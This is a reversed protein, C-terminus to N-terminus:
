QTQRQGLNMLASLIHVKEQQNQSFKKMGVRTIDLYHRSWHFCGEEARKQCSNFEQECFCKKRLDNEHWGGNVASLKSLVEASWNTSLHVWGVYKFHLPYRICNLLKIQIVEVVQKWVPYPRPLHRSISSNEANHLWLTHKHANINKKVLKLRRMCIVWM